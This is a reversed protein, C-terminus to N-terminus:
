ERALAAGTAVEALQATTTQEEDRQEVDTARLWDLTAACHVADDVGRGRAWWAQAAAVTPWQLVALILVM